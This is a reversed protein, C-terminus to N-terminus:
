NFPEVFMVMGGSIISSETWMSKIVHSPVPIRIWILLVANGPLYMPKHRNM